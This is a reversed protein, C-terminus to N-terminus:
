NLYLMYNRLDPYTQILNEDVEINQLRIGNLYAVIKVESFGETKIQSLHSLADSFHNFLGSCYAYSDSKPNKEIMSDQYKGILNGKYLQDLMIFQVRYTLGKVKEYFAELRGDKMSNMFEPMQYNVKLPIQDLAHLRFDIRRNYFRGTENDKGEIENMSLPYNGGLGKLFISSSKIGKSMLYTAIQETRKISFFLDFNSVATQDSHCIIEINIHPYTQLFGVLKDLKPRNQPTLVQDDRYLLYPVNFEAMAAENEQNSGNHMDVLSENFLQFDRVESFLIPTSSHLNGLNPQKFYASYIDHGGLGSKRDSSFFAMLGNSSIRYFLDNGASNLPRGLNVPSLWQNTREIFKTEFIDFGGISTLRNSSFYLTRGDLCIFPTVEDFVSNIQDGLNVAASWGSANRRSYFLDYGGYGERASSSFFIVSDNFFYLGRINEDPLFPSDNWINGITEQDESNFTDIWLRGENVNQTRTFFLAMGDKSFDQLVEHQATNLRPNLTEAKAWAGNEIETGFMDTDLGQVSELLSGDDAFRDQIRLSRTSSFYVRATYNPSEIPGFDDMRSNVESGMNEVLVDDSIYSFKLGSACRKVDNVVESYREDKVASALFRKYYEIAQSFQHLQHHTKARLLSVEPDDKKTEEELFQLNVIAEECDNSEFQAKALWFWAELDKPKTPCYTKLIDRAERFRFSEMYQEATKRLNRNQGWASGSIFICVGILLTIIAKDSAKRDFLTM